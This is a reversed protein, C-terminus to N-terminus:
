IADTEDTIIMSLQRDHREPLFDVNAWNYAFGISTSEPHMALLRDYWGGGRGLRHNDASYGVVPVLIVDYNGTPLSTTKGRGVYTIAINKPLMEILHSPDIEGSNALPAYALVSKVKSWDYTHLARDCVLMSSRAIVARSLRKMKGVLQQRLDIKPANM